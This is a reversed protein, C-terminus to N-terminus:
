GGFGTATTAKREAQQSSEEASAAQNKPTKVGKGGPKGPTGAGPAGPPPLVGADQLRKTSDIEEQEAEELIEEADNLELEAPAIDNHILERLIRVKALLKMQQMIQLENMRMQKDRPLPDPWKVGSYYPTPRGYSRFEGLIEKIRLVLYNIRQIGETYTLRKKKMHELIPAFQIALAVGSTNSIATDGGFAVKPMSGLQFLTDKLNILYERAAALDGELQLNEIKADKPLGSWVKRAGKQITSAKAGYIVTVPAAHYNIIDSMDTIKENFERNIDIIDGIDSMGWYETGVLLNKIHVFPIEKLLNPKPDAIPNGDKLEWVSEATWYQGAVYSRVRVRGFANSVVESEPWQVLLARPHRDSNRMFVPYCFESPFATIKVRDGYIPDEDIGVNVWCDGTVGGIQAMQYGLKGISNKAWEENLVDEADTYTRGRWNAHITFENGMLYQAHKDVFLRIFNATTVPEGAEPVYNWHSGKYFNWLRGYQLIRQANQHWIDIEHGSNVPYDRNVRNLTFRTMDM